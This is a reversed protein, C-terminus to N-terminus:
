LILLSIAPCVSSQPLQLHSWSGARPLMQQCQTIVCHSLVSPCWAAFCLLLLGPSTLPCLWGRPTVKGEGPTLRVTTPLKIDFHPANISAATQGCQLLKCVIKHQPLPQKSYSSPQASSSRQTRGSSLASQSNAPPKIDRLSCVKLSQTHM